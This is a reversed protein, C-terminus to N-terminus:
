FLRCYIKVQPLPNRATYLRFKDWDFSKRQSRRNLWKFMIREAALLFIAVSRSNFSVGYYQVHGRLKARFTKWIEGLTKQNRIERAWANVRKLKSRLRKGSTKVKPIVKGRLSRGLYFTFGLFDFGEEVHTIRTKKQSLSLGRIQLFKEVAPQIKNELLEKSEGTIILRTAWPFRVRLSECIRDPAERSLRSKNNL